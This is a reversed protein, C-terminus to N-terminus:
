VKGPVTHHRFNVFFQVITGSAPRTRYFRVIIKVVVCITGMSVKRLRKMSLTLAYNGEGFSAVWKLIGTENLNLNKLLQLDQFVEEAITM